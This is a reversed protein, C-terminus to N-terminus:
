SFSMVGDFSYLNEVKIFSLNSNNLKSLVDLIDQHSIEPINETGQIRLRWHDSLLTSDNLEPWIITGRNSIMKLALHEPLLTSVKKALASVDTDHVELFLDLGVLKKEEIPKTTGKSSKKNQNTESYEVVKLKSPKEGLRAVLANTFEKTGVRKKSHADSYIDGTHIGDELTKLLANHILSAEKPLNLHSLMMLSGLLLGSPNAIGKGAIDPASGHIAEFMGFSEGVNSSGALGVSGAVEAVIDSIIDGYLNLTVVVDFREPDAALRASGIDIIYHDTEIGPYELKIEDFVKHFLGDTLKMINDKTMCSVKKRNNAVAYEFAYRIIRECGKRTILKLCQICDETQRHEIGAYLDEENERIIVLDLKPFNTEVFPSYAVFPRVNAYLGLKSRLTVNLSKFGGGQPTTIPAKLLVPIKKLVDWTSPEIGTKIGKSFVKEGLDIETYELPAKAAELISVVAETIEPGIGDGKALVVKHM